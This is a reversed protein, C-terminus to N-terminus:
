VLAFGSGDHPIKVIGANQLVKAGMYASCRAWSSDQKEDYGVPSKIGATDMGHGIAAQNYVFLTEAATGKGPLANHVLWDVGAWTFRIRKIAGTLVTGEIYDKSTIEKEQMLYGFGAWSILGFINGEAADASGLGVIAHMIADVSLTVASSSISQTATALQAIILDDIKRNIVAMSTEQMAGRQDGQSSFINFNTKEVLDHWEAMQLTVQNNDDVRAQLQGNAGRTQASAGGSGIIDFVFTNGKVMGRTTCTQRLLSQRREFAALLETDYLAQFATPTGM